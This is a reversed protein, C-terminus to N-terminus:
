PAAEPACALGCGIMSDRTVLEALAAESWGETGAPRQPIVLYRVEATSDWVRISTTEDLTVGFEALVGRPDKVARSRYPASKYWTPPLGLVPWPYCSCLTCVVMHHQADTNQMAVMHEGQRGTYDLSAIAATADRMLWEHFAPDVWARAVVRAGNRPGIKTQYTDILVDLAAPDIYGKQSLVSQLARVRLDMEGLESHDHHDHHDHDHHDHAM